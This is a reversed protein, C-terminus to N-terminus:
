QRKKIVLNRKWEHRCQPNDGWWGGSRDFVSYGVRQSILEIESRTYLRDLEILKRCFPRSTDILEPGAGKRVEYSYKVYVDVPEPKPRTDIVEPNVAREIITDIGVSVPRSTLVGAEQLSKIRQSVYEPTSKITEAIIAPTIRKDKGIMNVIDSDIQSLDAFKEVENFKMSKAIIFNQRPEGVESFMMAVEEEETLDANFDNGGLLQSIEDDCLALSSKLLTAAAERTMKGAGYQRIIRLLQQHQRGTLNKVNENVMAQSPGAPAPATSPYKAPDIGLNEYVWEKPLFEKFNVPDISIGLPAVPIFKEPKLGILPSLFAVVGEMAQQKDNIYTNKFIEYADQIENRNGLAGPQSIGFLLPSTVQHGSFIESQVTKNLQEFLKDLDTASLDSVQPPTAANQNFSLMTRGANGSGNFKKEWQKELVNMEEKTPVGNFFSILKGSFQGNKMVSLNYISIEVDTEIDNLAGFYSPLPYHDCGPRYENYAFIQAGTKLKPDYNPIFVPEDDKTNYKSWDKRFWFGKGDKSKRLNHFPMHVLENGGGMKPIIQMRGGGFLEVDTCFRKLVTNYKDGYRNVVPNTPLGNGIIYTVKGNVIANHNSSKNYLNLLHEPFKNDVGFLIWEKSPVEKFKPVENDAFGLFIINKDQM